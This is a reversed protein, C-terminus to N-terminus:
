SPLLMVVLFLIFLTPTKETDVIFDTQFIVQDAFVFVAVRGPFQLLDLLGRKAQTSIEGCEIEFVVRYKVTYFRGM